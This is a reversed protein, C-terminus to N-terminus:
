QFRSPRGAIFTRTRRVVEGWPSRPRRQPFHTPTTKGADHRHYILGASLISSTSFIGHDVM